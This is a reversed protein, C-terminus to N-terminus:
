RIVGGMPECKTIYRAFICPTILLFKKSQLNHYNWCFVKKIYHKPINASFEFDPGGGLSTSLDAFKAWTLKQYIVEGGKIFVVTNFFWTRTQGELHPLEWHFTQCLDCALPLTFHLEDIEKRLHEVVMLIIRNVCHIIFIHPLWTCKFWIFYKEVKNIFLM